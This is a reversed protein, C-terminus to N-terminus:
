GESTIIEMKQAMRKLHLNPLNLILTIRVRLKRLLVKERSKNGRARALPLV